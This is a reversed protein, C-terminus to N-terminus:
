FMKELLNQIKVIMDKNHNEKVLGIPTKSGDQRARGQKRTFIAGCYGCVIKSSFPYRLSYKSYDTPKGDKM